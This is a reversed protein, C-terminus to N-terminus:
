AVANPSSKVIDNLMFDRMAGIQKVIAEMDEETLAKREELTTLFLGRGHKCNGVDSVNLNTYLQADGCPCKEFRDLAGRGVNRLFDIKGANAGIVEEAWAKKSIFLVNCLDKAADPLWCYCLKDDLSEVLLPHTIFKQKKSDGFQFDM